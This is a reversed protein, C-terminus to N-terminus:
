LTDTCPISPLFQDHHASYSPLSDVETPVTESVPYSFSDVRWESCLMGSFERENNMFDDSNLNVASQLSRYLDPTPVLHHISSRNGCRKCYLQHNHCYDSFINEKAFGVLRMYNNDPSQNMVVCKPCDVSLENQGRITWYKTLIEHASKLIQPMMSWLRRLEDDLSTSSECFAFIKVEESSEKAKGTSTRSVHLKVGSDFETKFGDEFIDKECIEDEKDRWYELALRQLFFQPMHCAFTYVVTIHAHGSYKSYDVEPFKGQKLHPFFYSPITSIDSPIRYTLNFKMFLDIISDFLENSETNCKWLEKLISEVIIGYNKRNSLADRLMETRICCEPSRRLRKIDEDFKHHYVKKLLNIMWDLNLVVITKRSPSELLFIEGIDHCYELFEEGPIELEGFEESDRFIVPPRNENLKREACMHLRDIAGVWQLAEKSDSFGPSPEPSSSFSKLKEVLKDHGKFSYTNTLCFIQLDKISYLGNVDSSSNKSKDKCLEKTWHDMHAVSDVACNHQSDAHTCVIWVAPSLDHSMVKLLWKGIHQRYVEGDDESAPKYKNLDVVLWVLCNDTIFLDNMMAYDDDGAHDWLRAYGCGKLSSICCYLGTM